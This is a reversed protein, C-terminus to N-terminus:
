HPELIVDKYSHLLIYSKPVKVWPKVLFHSRLYAIPMIMAEEILIKDAPFGFKVGLGERAASGLVVIISAGSVALIRDFYRGTCFDRAERVGIESKSKCHM